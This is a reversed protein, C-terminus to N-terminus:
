GVTGARTRLLLWIFVPAGIIATLVGTPIPSILPANQAIVDSWIVILGGVLVAVPLQPGRPLLRVAIPGAILSVFGIPGVVSTTIAAATAGIGLVVLRVTTVRIGLGSALDDGMALGGLGRSIAVAISGTVLLLVALRAVDSWELGAVTGITWRTAAATARLDARTLLYATISDAVASMGIGVLILRYTDLGQRWSFAVVLGVTVLAGILASLPIGLGASPMVVIIIVAGTGAGSTIGIIDPTALPNRAVRQYLMGSLGFLAGALAAGLARPERTEFIVYNALGRGEGILAPLLKASPISASGGLTLTAAIGTLLAVAAGSIVLAARRRDGRQRSRMVARIDARNAEVMLATM